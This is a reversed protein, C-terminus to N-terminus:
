HHIFYRTNHIMSNEEQSRKGDLVAKRLGQVLKHTVISQDAIKAFVSDKMYLLDRSLLLQSQLETISGLSMDYFHAKDAGTARSFGEAINSTVSVAARRIQNTLGFKEQEPFTSTANYVLLSLRHGEQWAILDTFGKIVVKENSSVQYKM